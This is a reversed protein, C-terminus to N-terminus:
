SSRRENPPDGEDKKICAWWLEELRARVVGLEALALEIKARTKKQEELRKGQLDMWEPYAREVLFRWMARGALALAALIVVPMGLRDILELLELNM